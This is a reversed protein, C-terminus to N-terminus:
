LITSYTLKVFFNELPPFNRFNGFQAYNVCQVRQQATVDISLEREISEGFCGIESIQIYDCDVYM